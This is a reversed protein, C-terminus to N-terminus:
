HNAVDGGGTDSTSSGTNNQTNDIWSSTAKCIQKVVYSPRGKVEEYIRGIYEGVVGLFILQIGAFFAISVILATFGPPPQAAASFALRAYVSYTVFCMSFLISLMGLMTALRLPVLSFSFIGDFALNFLRRVSYKSKGTSRQEREVPVGVQSFGFWARLGRLYRSREPAQNILDVVRRSMLSFDGSDRPLAPFSIRQILWYFISYCARFMLGEKRRIRIAYVVEYGEAYKELLEPIREPPDQLDGDMMVVVDGSVHRLAACYAAQQGFNRSLSIATIRSDEMAAEAIRSFTADTSGDDVFLIEHPGGSLTDLVSRTRQLLEAIVLEENYLPIAISIRPTEPM